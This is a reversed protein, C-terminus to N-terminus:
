RAFGFEQFRDVASSDVPEGSPELQDQEQQIAAIIDDLIEWM